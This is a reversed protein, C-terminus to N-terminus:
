SLSEHNMFSIILTTSTNKSYWRLTKDVFNKHGNFFLWFQLRKSEQFVRPHVFGELDQVERESVRLAVMLNLAFNQM